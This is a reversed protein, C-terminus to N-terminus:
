GLLGENKIYLSTKGDKEGTNSRCEDEWRM